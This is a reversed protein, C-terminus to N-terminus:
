NPNQQQEKRMSVDWFNEEAQFNSFNVNPPSPTLKPNLLVIRSMFVRKKLSFENEPTFLPIQRSTEKLNKPFNQSTMDGFSSSGAAEFKADPISERNYHSM